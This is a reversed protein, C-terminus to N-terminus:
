EGCGSEFRWDEHSQDRGYTFVVSSIFRVLRQNLDDVAGEETLRDREDLFSEVIKQVAQERKVTTLYPLTKMIFFMMNKEPDWEPNRHTLYAVYEVLEYKFAIYTVFYQFREQLDTLEQQKKLGISCAREASSERSDSDSSMGASSPESSTQLTKCGSRFTEVIRQLVNKRQEDTFQPLFHKLLFKMNEISNCGETSFVLRNISAQDKMLTEYRGQATFTEETQVAFIFSPSLLGIVLFNILKSLFSLSM